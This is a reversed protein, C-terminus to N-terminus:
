RSVRYTATSGTTKSTCAVNDSPASLIELKAGLCYKKLPSSVGIYEYDAGTPDKPIESLYKDAVLTNHLVLAGEGIPYTKNVDYYLALGIQIAKMDSTRKDDRARARSAGTAGIVVTTLISIIAVVTLLEVLSFGKKM